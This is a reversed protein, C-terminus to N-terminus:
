GIVRTVRSLVADLDDPTNSNLTIHGVKRGPRPQKKYDHTHTGPETLRRTADPVEGILNIMASHGVPKTSGLHMGLVARVHNEFQSTAAGEITWHGSNHVRPAMENALLGADTEFFEVALVGIYGLADVVASGADEAADAAASSVGRAPARSLRLIGGRHVNDVLPYSRVEGAPSRVVLVSIERKFNVFRDLLSPARGVAAWARPADETSSVLAQGKGDYGLRRAKLLAPGPSRALAAELDELSSVADYAPTPIGLGAFLERERLRDQATRLAAPGPRVPALSELFEAAAVPVNEFEYTVADCGEAFAALRDEDDWAGVVLEHRQGACADAATDYLRTRVGLRSAADGLMLGLQGAGLIGLTKSM